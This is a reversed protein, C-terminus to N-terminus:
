RRTPPAFGSGPVLRVVRPAPEQGPSAAALEAAAREAAARDATPGVVVHFGAAGLAEGTAADALRSTPLIMAGSAPCRGPGDSDGLTPAGSAVGARARWPGFLKSLYRDTEGTAVAYVPAAPAAFGGDAGWSLVALGYGRTKEGADGAMDVFVDRHVRFLTLAGGLETFCAMQLAETQEQPTDSWVASPDSFMRGLEVIAVRPPRTTAVVLEDRYVGDDPDRHRVQARAFVDVVGDGDVDAPKPSPRPDPGVVLAASRAVVADGDPEAVAWRWDASRRAGKVVTRLVVLAAPAGGGPAGLVTLERVTWDDGPGLAAGLAELEGRAGDPLAKPSAAGPAQAGLWAAFAAGPVSALAAGAAVDAETPDPAATTDTDTDTDKDAESPAAAATDAEGPEAAGTDAEIPAAAATDAELPAAPAAADAEPPEAAAPEAADAEAPPAATVPAAPADGAPGPAEKGCGAALTAILAVALARLTM